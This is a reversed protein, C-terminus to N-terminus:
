LQGFHRGLMISALIALNVPVGVRAEPWAVASLALSVLAVSTAAAPWWTRHTLAGVAVVCFMIAAALWLVGMVRVGGDGLDVRGALVTTKYPLEASEVLRWSGVFGVLHALGHLFMLIALTVRM